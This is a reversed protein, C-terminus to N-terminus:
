EDNTKEIRMPVGMASYMARTHPLGRTLARGTTQACFQRDGRAVVAFPRDTALGAVDKDRVVAVAGPGVVRVVPKPGGAGLGLFSLEVRAAEAGPNFLHWTLRREVNCDDNGGAQDIGLWWVREETLPGPYFHTATMAGPCVQSWMEFEAGCVAPVVPSDSRVTMAYPENVALHTGLWPKALLWDLRTKAPAIQIGEGSSRGGAKHFTVTADAPRDVSLNHTFLLNWTRDVHAWPPGDEAAKPLIGVDVLEGGPYYWEAPLPRRLPVGMKSRSGIIEQFGTWRARRTTQCVVPESARIHVTFEQMLRVQLGNPMGLVRVPREHSDLNLVRRPPITLREEAGLDQVRQLYRVHVEAPRDGPNLVTITEREFWSGCDGNFCDVLVWETEDALPGPYPAVSAIADPVPDWFTHDEHRAQPLIPVDSAVEIWFAQRHPVEALGALELRRIEGPAVTRSLSTPERDVHYFRVTVAAPCKQPNFLFLQSSCELPRGGERRYEAAHRDWIYGDCVYWLTGPRAYQPQTM